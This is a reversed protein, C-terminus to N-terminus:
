KDASAAARKLERTQEEYPPKNMKVAFEVIEAIAFISLLLACILSIIWHRTIIAKLRKM